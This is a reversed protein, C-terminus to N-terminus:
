KRPFLNINAGNSQNETVFTIKSTGTEREKRRIRTRPRLKLTRLITCEWTHDQRADELERIVILLIIADTVISLNENEDFGTIV